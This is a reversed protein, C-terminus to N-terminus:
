GAGALRTDQSGIQGFSQFKHRMWIFMLPQSTTSGVDLLQSVDFKWLLNRDLEKCKEESVFWSSTHRSAAHRGIRRLRLFPSQWQLSSCRLTAICGAEDRESITTLNMEQKVAQAIWSSTVVLISGTRLKSCLELVRLDM